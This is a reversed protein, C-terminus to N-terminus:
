ADPQQEARRHMEEPSLQEIVTSISWRHGFPDVVQGGREGYFQDEVPRVVTAGAAVARAVVADVDAVVLSLLVASGGYALPSQHGHEPYEDALYLRAGGVLLEAHGLRGDDDAFRMVEVAGFAERYFDIAAVGGRVCLYPTLTAAGVEPPTGAAPAPTTTPTTTTTDPMADRRPTAETLRDVLEAARARRVVRTGASPEPPEPAALADEIRRRLEAAFAARPAVPQDPGLTTFPDPPM